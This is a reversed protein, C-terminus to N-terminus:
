TSGRRACIHSIKNMCRLGMRSLGALVRRVFEGPSYLQWYSLNGIISPVPNWLDAVRIVDQKLALFRDHPIHDNNCYILATNDPNGFDLIRWDMEESVLGKLHCIDWLETGPMPTTVSVHVHSMPTEEIFKITQQIDDETEGLCGIMFQGGVGIGAANTLAAAYRNREVTVAGKKLFDLIRESGSEFGYAIQIVNISNLLELIEENVLNAHGNVNFVIGHHLNREKILRVIDRLRKRDGIFLDDIINIANIAPYTNRIHEIEAVVRQASHYRCSGWQASAQCFRCSFPCGRSTLLVFGKFNGKMSFYMRRATYWKMNLLTLDPPPLSDLDSIRARPASLSLKGSTDRYCLGDIKSLLDSSLKGHERFCSCFEALTIEGEGMVGADASDPLSHPLSTIHPGGLLITLHPAVNRLRDCFQQVEYFGVTYTTFGVIDPSSALIKDIAGDLDQGFVLEVLFTEVDNFESKLHSSLYCLGIPPYIDTRINVLTIKM